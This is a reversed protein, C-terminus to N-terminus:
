PEVVAQVMGSVVVCQDAAQTGTASFQLFRGQIKALVKNGQRWFLIQADYPQLQERAGDLFIGCPDELRERDPAKFHWQAGNIEDTSSVDLRVNFIFSNDDDGDGAVSASQTGTSRFAPTKQPWTSFLVLFLGGDHQDISVRPPPFLTPTGDLLMASVPAMAFQTAPISPPPIAPLAADVETPPPAAQPQRKCALGLFIGLIVLPVLRKMPDLEKVKKAALPRSHSITRSRVWTACVVHTRPLV